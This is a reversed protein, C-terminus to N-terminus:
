LTGIQTASLSKKVAWTWYWDRSRLTILPKDPRPPISGSDDEHLDADSGNHYRDGRHVDKYIYIYLYLYM